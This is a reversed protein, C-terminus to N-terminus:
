NCFPCTASRCRKHGPPRQPKPIDAIPVGNWRSGPEVVVEISEKPPTKTMRLSKGEMVVYTPGSVLKELESVIYLKLSVGEAAANMKLRRLLEPEIDRINLAPVSVSTVDTELSTLRNQTM